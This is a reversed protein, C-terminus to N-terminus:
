SEAIRRTLMQEIQPWAHRLATLDQQTQQYLRSAATREAETAANQRANLATNRIATLHRKWIKRICDQVCTTAADEPDDARPRVKCQANTIRALLHQTEEPSDAIASLLDEEEEALATLIPRVIPHLMPYLLWQRVMAALRPDETTVLIEALALEEVPLPEAAPRQLINAIQDETAPAPAATYRRTKRRLKQLDQQLASTGLGLNRAAARLLQEEQVGGSTHALLEVMRASARQLGIPTDLQEDRRLIAGLFDIVSQAHDLVEKFATAGQNLILSDPDEGPPLTAITVHMEEALLLEATRLAAKEGATDADLVLLASDAYRKLLRAHEPTFATGQSAVVNEFGALHCRICDIQGECLIALRSDHIHKRARDLGFLIRSKRFVPTEPSNIYKGGDAGDTRLTRGSFGVVRGLEDRIAFMIRDRFRDYRHQKNEKQATLGAADLADMHFPARPTKTQDCLFGWEDPAYGIEWAHWVDPDLKRKELYDRASRAGPTADKALRAAYQRAAAALAEFIRDKPPGGAGGNAATAGRPQYEPVEIGTRRGLMRLATPFDVGEQKMLFAYVDGGVGCGFCHFTQHASNIVFSPTKEKHFPCLAKATQAGTRHIQVYTGIVDAIDIANRIDEKIREADPSYAM